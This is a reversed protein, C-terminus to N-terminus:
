PLNSRCLGYRVARRSSMGDADRGPHRVMSGNSL